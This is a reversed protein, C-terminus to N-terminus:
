AFEVLLSEEGKFIRHQEESAYQQSQKSKPKVQKSCFLQYCGGLLVSASHLIFTSSPIGTLQYKIHGLLCETTNKGQSM